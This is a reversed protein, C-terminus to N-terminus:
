FQVVAITNEHKQEVYSEENKDIVGAKFFVLKKTAGSCNNNSYTNKKPVM